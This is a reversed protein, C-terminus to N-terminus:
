CDLPICPKRGKVEAGCDGHKKCHKKMSEYSDMAWRVNAHSEKMIYRLYNRKTFGRLKCALDQANCCGSEQLRPGLAGNIGGVCEISQGELKQKIFRKAKMSSGFKIDSRKSCKKSKPRSVKTQKGCKNSRGM